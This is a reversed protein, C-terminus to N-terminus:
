AGASPRSARARLFGLNFIAATLKGLDAETRAADCLNKFATLAARELGEPIAARDLLTRYTSLGKEFDGAAVEAVVAAVEFETAVRAAVPAIPELITALDQLTQQRLVKEALAALYRKFAEDSTAAKPFSAAPDIINVGFDRKLDEM